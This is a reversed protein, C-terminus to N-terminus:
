WRIFCLDASIFAKQNVIENLSDLTDSRLIPIPSQMILLTVCLEIAGNLVFNM